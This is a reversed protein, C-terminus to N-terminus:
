MKGFSVSANIELDMFELFFKIGKDAAKKVADIVRIIVSEIYKKYAKKAAVIFGAIADKANRWKRKLFSILGENLQELHYWEEEMIRDLASYINQEEPNYDFKVATYRGKAGGKIDFSVEKVKDTNNASWKFIDDYITAKNGSFTFMQKAVYINNGDYNGKQTDGTFKFCGSSAEYVLYKQFDPDDGFIGKWENHAEKQAVTTKLITVIQEKLTTNDKIVEKDKATFYRPNIQGYVTKGAGASKGTGIKYSDNMYAPFYITDLDSKTIPKVKPIANLKDQSKPDSKPIKFLSLEAKMYDDQKKKNKEFKVLEARRGSTTVYWNQFDRKGKEAEIIIDSYRLENFGGNLYEVFEYLKENAKKKENKEYNLLAAMVMGSSEPGAGSALFAGGGEKLSFTSGDSGMIDTKSTKDSAPYGLTKNYHNADGKRGLQVMHDGVKLNKVIDKSEEEWDSRLSDLDKKEKQWVEMEIQGLNAAEDESRDKKKMNYAMVIAKEMLTAYKTNSEVLNQVRSDPKIYNEQIPKLQQVYKQLSM